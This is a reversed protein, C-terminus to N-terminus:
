YSCTENRHHPKCLFKALKHDWANFIIGDCPFMDSATQQRNLKCKKLSVMPHYEQSVGGLVDAIMGSIKAMNTRLIDCRSWPELAWMSVWSERTTRCKKEHCHYPSEQLTFCHFIPVGNESPSLGCFSPLGSTWTMNSVKMIGKSKWRDMDRSTCIWAKKQLTEM